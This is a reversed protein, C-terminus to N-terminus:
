TLRGWYCFTSRNGYAPFVNQEEELEQLADEICVIEFRSDTRYPKEEAYVLLTNTHAPIRVGGIGKRRFQKSVTDWDETDIEARYLYDYMCVIERIAQRRQYLEYEYCNECYNDGYYIGCYLGNIGCTNIRQEKTDRKPLVREGIKDLLNKNLLVFEKEYQRILRMENQEAEKKTLGSMLVEM